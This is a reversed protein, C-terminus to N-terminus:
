DLLRTLLYNSRARVQMRPLKKVPAVSILMDGTDFKHLQEPSPLLKAEPFLACLRAKFKENVSEAAVLLSRSLVERDIEDRAPPHDLIGRPIHVAMEAVAVQKANPFGSSPLEIMAVGDPDSRFEDRHSFMEELVIQNKAKARAKLLGFRKEDDWIPLPFLFRECWVKKDHM